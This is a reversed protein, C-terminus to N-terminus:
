VKGIRADVTYHYFLIAQDGLSGALKTAKIGSSTKASFFARRDSLLSLSVSAPASWNTSFSLDAPDSSLNTAAWANNLMVGITVNDTTGTLPSYITITPTASLKVNQYELEFGTIYYFSSANSAPQYVMNMLEFRANNYTTQGPTNALAYSKEYYFQCEQLVQDRTQPAPRTAIDGPVVSISNTTVFTGSVPCSFTVVIAFKHTDAALTDDDIEWGNFGLDDITNLDTYDPTTIAPLTGTAQGLNGRPIVTWGAQTLTFVGAADITGLSTPLTPFTAAATGRCLYVKVAVNGGAQTRFANINVSLETGLIKTAQNPPLYQLYYFAENITGTTAQIGFTVSNRVITVNGAFSQGITQDWLYDATTSMTTASGTQAPNLPFDWGTLMSSIPKFNIAPQYYHFLHDIQRNLSEQEYAINDVSEQGTSALMISSVEIQIGAPIDIEIDVYADPYTQTSASEPIFVQGSVPEYDGSAPFIGTLILKDSVSGNSQSYYMSIDTDTGTFTRGMLSGSLWGSGWLNPSGYLRQRLRFKTIGLGSCQINLITGPNTVLNATGAPTTQSVTVTSSGSCSIVIDWDPGLAATQNTGAGFNYTYNASNTDFLVEAFQPNSLENVHANAIATIDGASQIYPQAERTFQEVGDSSTVRIYYLEVGGDSDDPDGGYPFFYPITPNSLTDEFTGISSLQVPNDMQIFTYNPSTGTIQYVPKLVGRNNDQEFYVLGGSLPAGTDKDLIVDEISFAPIFRPDLPIAM